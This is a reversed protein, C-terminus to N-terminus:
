INFMNFFQNVHRFQLPLAINYLKLLAHWITTTQELYSNLYFVTDQAHVKLSNM